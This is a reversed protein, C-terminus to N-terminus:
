KFCIASSKRKSSLFGCHLSLASFQSCPPIEITSPRVFITPLTVLDQTEHLLFSGYHHYTHYMASTASLSTSPHQRRKPISLRLPHELMQPKAPVEVEVPPLLVEVAVTKDGLIEGEVQPEKDIVLDVVGVSTSVEVVVPSGTEAM